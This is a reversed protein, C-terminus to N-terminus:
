VVDIGFVREIQRRAGTIEHVGGRQQVNAAAVRVCPKARGYGIEGANLAVAVIFVPPQEADARLTLDSLVDRSPHLIAIGLQRLVVALILAVANERAEAVAESSWAPPPSSRRGCLGLLM